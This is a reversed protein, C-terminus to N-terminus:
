KLLEHMALTIGVITAVIGLLKVAGNILFIQKQVQLTIQQLDDTRKIHHKLQVSQMGLTIDISSLHENQDDIKQEIRTLRKDDM